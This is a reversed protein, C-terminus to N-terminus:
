EKKSETIESEVKGKAKKFESIGQGLGKMLQPIKSGGFFLLIVIAIIIIEPAGLAWLFIINTNM